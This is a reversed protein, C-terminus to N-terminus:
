PGLGIGSSVSGEPDFYFSRWLETGHIIFSVSLYGSIQWQGDGKIFKLSNVSEITTTYHEKDETHKLPGWNDINVCAKEYNFPSLNVDYNKKTKVQYRALSTLTLDNITVNLTENKKDQKHKNGHAIVRFCLEDGPHFEFTGALAGKHKVKYDKKDSCIFRYQLATTVQEIDFELELFYTKNKKPPKTM